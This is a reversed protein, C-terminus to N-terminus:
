LQCEAVTKVASLAACQRGIFGQAGVSACDDDILDKELLLLIQPHEDLLASLRRLQEGREHPAPREYPLDATSLRQKAISITCFEPAKDAAM